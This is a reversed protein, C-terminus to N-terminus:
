RAFGRRRLVLRFGGWLLVLLVMDFLILGVLVRASPESLRLLALGDFGPLASIVLIALVNNAFHMGWALGIGGTRATLDAAILGFLTTVLVVWLGSVGSLGPGYHAFGFILAPVVAWAVPSAPFRAGLQQLLYARFVLEEAGTQVLVALLALPLLLLWVSLPLAPALMPLAPLALAGLGGVVVTFGVMGFGFDRVLRSPAGFLTFFPRRHLRRVVGALALWVSLFSALLLLLAFPDQGEALAEGGSRRPGIFYYLSVVGFAAVLYAAVVLGFGLATRWLEAREHAPAVFAAFAPAVKSM